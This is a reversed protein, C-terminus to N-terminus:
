KPILHKISRPKKPVQSGSRWQYPSSRRLSPWSRPWWPSGLWTKSRQPRSSPRRRPHQTSDEKMPDQIAINHDKPLQNTVEYKKATCLTPTTPQAIQHGEEPSEARVNSSGPQSGDYNSRGWAQLDQDPKLSCSWRTLNSHLHDEPWPNYRYEPCNSHLHEEPYPNYRYCWWSTDPYCNLRWSQNAPSSQCGSSQLSFTWQDFPRIFAKNERAMSGGQHICSWM